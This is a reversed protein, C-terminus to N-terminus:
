LRRAEKPTRLMSCYLASTSDFEFRTESDISSSSALGSGYMTTIM